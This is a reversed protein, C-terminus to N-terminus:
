SLRRRRLLLPAISFLALAISSPEPTPAYTVYVADMQADEWLSFDSPHATGQEFQAVNILFASSNFGSIKGGSPAASAMQWTYSQGPTLSPNGIITVNFPNANTANIALMSVNLNDWNTGAGAAPSGAAPAQSVKWVYNGGGNWAMPGTTLTANAAPSGPAVTGSVNVVNPAVNGISGAGALTAGSAVNVATNGLSGDVQLTGNIINTTGVYTSTSTLVLTGSGLKLLGGGNNVALDPARLTYSFAAAPAAPGGGSFTFNLVDGAQYNQGPSTLTVGTIAGASVNAIATAGAGSGGTINVLPSGIYGSGGSSIALMGGAPYVGNGGPALLPASLTDNFGQTDVVAGGNYINVANPTGDILTLGSAGAQLTGGNFNVAGWSGAGKHISGAGLLLSGSNLNLTGVTGSGAALQIGAGSQSILNANGGALTGLNLTGSGATEGILIGYNASGTATGGTFTAIGTGYTGISLERGLLLSGGTQTLNGLGVAGVRIGSAAGNPSLTGGSLTYAGYGGPSGVALVGTGMSLYGATGNSYNFSGSSQNIAGAATPSSQTGTIGGVDPANFTVAGTSSLSLVANGATGGVVLPGGGSSGGTGAFSLTGANITTLGTYTNQAGFTLTGAGSKTLPNVGNALVPTNIALSDNPKDTRIVLEAGAAAEIANGGSITAPVGGNGSKLIGNVTLTAGDALGFSNSGPLSLSTVTLGPQNSINGTAQVYQYGAPITSGATTFAGADTSYNIPSVFESVDISAYTSGGFFTGVGLFQRSLDTYIGITQENVGGNLVFNGTAGIARPGFYSPYLVLNSTSSTENLQVTADGGSFTITNLLQARNSSSGVNEFLFTGSGTFVVNEASQFSGTTQNLDLTGALISVNGTFTNAGSIVWTGAGTKLLSTAGTGNDALIPKFSNAATSSGALTLTLPKNPTSFAISGTNTFAIAGSGSADLTGGSPGLTFLRDTTTAAGTYQLTGGNLVLNAAANSSQGIGSAIGGAGEAGLLSVSLVGSNIMTPGAYTNTGPLFVTGAGSLLLGGAGSINGGLTIAGTGAGGISLTNNLVLDNAIVFAGGGNQVVQPGSSTSNSSFTLTNASTNATIWEAATSNSNLQLENLLFTASGIDDTFTSGYLGMGGFNLETDIGSAPSTGSTWNAPDSWNGGANTSTYVDEARAFRGMAMIVIALLAARAPLSVWGVRCRPGRPGDQRQM